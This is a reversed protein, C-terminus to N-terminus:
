DQVNCVPYLSVAGKDDCLGLFIERVSKFGQERLRKELWKKDKGMRQLNSDMIHGDMILETCIGAAEPSQGMDSPTLPRSDSTPLITLRGNYEFVAMEIQSLDFYGAQRCLVMFESLDLKAKKMNSRYLKGGSMVITPTGNLYKRMRMSKSSILNLVVTVIGYIIMATLPRHPNELETALEAAISGVTIGNIYDFLDLQSIQKHGILKAIVFLVAMSLLSALAIQFIEACM